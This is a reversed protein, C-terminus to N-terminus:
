TTAMVVFMCLFTSLAPLLAEACQPLSLLPRAGQRGEKRGGERGSCALPRAPAPDWKCILRALPPLAPLLCLAGEERRGERGLEGSERAQTPRQGFRAYIIFPAAAKSARPMILSRLPPPYCSKSWLILAHFLVMEIILELRVKPSRRGTGRRRGSRRWSSTRQLLFSATTSFLCPWLVRMDGHGMRVHFASTEM